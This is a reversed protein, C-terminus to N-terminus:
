DSSEDACRRIKASGEPPRKKNINEQLKTGTLTASIENTPVFLFREHVTKMCIGKNARFEKAGRDGNWKPSKM